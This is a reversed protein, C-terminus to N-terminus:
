STFIRTYYRIFLNNDIINFLSEVKKHVQSSFEKGRCLPTGRSLRNRGTRVFIEDSLRCIEEFVLFHIKRVAIGEFV